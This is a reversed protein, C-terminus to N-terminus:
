STIGQLETNSLRRPFYTIRRLHGNIQQGSIGSLSGIFMKALSSPLAGATTATVAAAGNLSSAYNASAYAFALRATTNATYNGGNLSAVASGGVVTKPNIVNSSNIAIDIRDTAAATQEIDVVSRNYNSGFANWEAFLTGAAANFWSSFNTGTMVAVDAARTAAATTTAIYSTPFAGVELQAGWLFLGSTGDGTYATTSGNSLMPRVTSQTGDSTFTITVRYWGNLGVPEIRSTTLLNTVGGTQPASITGATLDVLVGGFTNGRYVVVDCKTRESAKLYISGTYATANTVTVLQQAYHDSTATTDEVLKDATPTGDPAAVLWSTDVTARIKVWAANDFQESYTLLNTRQEEILLGLCAGTLLDCDFRPANTAATQLLRNSGVFTGTSARTYTVPSTGTTVNTLNQNVFQLDLSPTQGGLAFRYPNINIM